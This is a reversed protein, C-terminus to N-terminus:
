VGSVTCVSPSLTRRVAAETSYWAAHPSLHLNPTDVLGRVFDDMQEVELVDIGAGGLEGQARDVANLLVEPNKRSPTLRWRSLSLSLDSAADCLPARLANGFAPSLPLRQPCFPLSAACPM